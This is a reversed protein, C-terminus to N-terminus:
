PSVMLDTYLEVLAEIAEESHKHMQRARGVWLAGMERTPDPNWRCGDTRKCGPAECHSPHSPNLKGFGPKPQHQRHM